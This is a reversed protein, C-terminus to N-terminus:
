PDLPHLNKQLLDDLGWVGPLKNGPQLSAGNGAQPPAALVQQQLQVPGVEQRYVQPHGSPKDIRVRICWPVLMSVQNKVQVVSVFQVIMVQPFKAGHVQHQNVLKCCKAGLFVQAGIGEIRVQGLFQELLPELAPAALDLFQKQVLRQHGPNTIDIGVLDEPPRANMRFPCDM